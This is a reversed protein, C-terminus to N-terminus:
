QIVGEVTQKEFMVNLGDERQEFTCKAKQCVHNNGDFSCFACGKFPKAKHIFGEWDRYTNEDVWEEKAHNFVASEKKTLVL